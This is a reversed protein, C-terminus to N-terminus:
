DTVVRALVRIDINSQTRRLTDIDSSREDKPAVHFRIWQEEAFLSHLEDLKTELFIWLLPRISFGQICMGPQDGHHAFSPIHMDQEFLLTKQCM